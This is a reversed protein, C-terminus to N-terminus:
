RRVGAIYIVTVIRFIQITDGYVEISEFGRLLLCGTVGYLLCKGQDQKITFLRTYHVNLCMCGGNFDLRM